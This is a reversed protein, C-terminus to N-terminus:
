RAVTVKATCPRGTGGPGSPMLSLEYTGADDNFARTSGSLPLPNVGGISKGQFTFTSDIKTANASNWTMTYAQGPKVTAPAISVTCSPAAAQQAFAASAVVANLVFGTAMLWARGFGSDTQRRPFQQRFIRM